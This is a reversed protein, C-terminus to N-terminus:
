HRAPDQSRHVLILDVRADPHDHTMHWVDEVEPVLRDIDDFRVRYVMSPTPGVVTVERARRATVHAARYLETESDYACGNYVYLQRAM